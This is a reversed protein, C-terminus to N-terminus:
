IYKFAATQSLLQKYAITNQASSYTTTTKKKQQSLLARWHPKGPLRSYIREWESDCPKPKPCFLLILSM